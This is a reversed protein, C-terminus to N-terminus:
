DGLSRWLPNKKIEACCSLSLSLGAINKRVLVSSFHIIIKFTSGRPSKGASPRFDPVFVGEAHLFLGVEAWRRVFFDYKQLLGGRRHTMRM